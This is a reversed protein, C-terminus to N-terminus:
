KGLIFQLAKMQQKKQAVGNISNWKAAGKKPDNSYPAWDASKKFSSLGKKIKELDDSLKDISTFIFEESPRSELYNRVLKLFGIRKAAKKEERLWKKSESPLLGSPMSSFEEILTAIETKIEEIKKM